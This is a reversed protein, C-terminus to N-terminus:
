EDIGHPEPGRPEGRDVGRGEEESGRRKAEGRRRMAGGELAKAKARRWSASTKGLRADRCPSRGSFASHGQWGEIVHCQDTTGADAPGSRLKARLSSNASCAPTSSSMRLPRIRRDPGHDGPAKETRRPEM